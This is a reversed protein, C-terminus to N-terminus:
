SVSLGLREDDIDWAADLEVLVDQTRPNEVSIGNHGGQLHTFARDLATAIARAILPNAVAPRLEAFYAACLPSNCWLVAINQELPRILELAQCMIDIEHLLHHRSEVRVGRFEIESRKSM